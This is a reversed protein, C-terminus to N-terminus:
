LNSLEVQPPPHEHTSTYHSKPRFGNPRDRAEEIGAKAAFYAIQEERHNPVSSRKRTRCSFSRFVYNGDAATTRFDRFYPSAANM